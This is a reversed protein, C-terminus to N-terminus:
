RHARTKDSQMREAPEHREVFQVVSVNRSHEAGSEAISFIDFNEFHTLLDLLSAINNIQRNQGDKTIMSSRRREWREEKRAKEDEM